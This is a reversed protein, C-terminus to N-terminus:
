STEWANPDLEVKLAEFAFCRCFFNAGKALLALNLHKTIQFQPGSPIILDGVRQPDLEVKLVKFEFCGGFFKARQFLVVLNLHKTIQFQTRVEVAQHQL